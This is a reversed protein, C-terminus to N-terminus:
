GVVILFFILRADTNLLKKLNRLYSFIIVMDLEEMGRVRAASSLFWAFSLVYIPSSTDLAPSDPFGGTM